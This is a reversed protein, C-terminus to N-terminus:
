PQPANLPSQGLGWATASDVRRAKLEKSLPESAIERFRWRLRRQARLGLVLDIGLGLLFWLTILMSWTTDSVGTGSRAVFVLLFAGLWNPLLVRGLTALLARHQRKGRLGMEMGIWSLAWSDALLAPIGGLFIGTFIRQDTTGMDLAASTHILFILAVNLSVLRASPIRFSRRLARCQGALIDRTTGERKEISLSDATLFVGALACFGFALLAIAVFLNKSLQPVPVSQPASLVLLLWIALTALAACFRTWHTAPRRAAVRLEREVIPLFTM